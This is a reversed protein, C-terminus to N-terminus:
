HYLIFSTIKNGENLCIDLYVDNNKHQEICIIFYYLCFLLRNGNNHCFIEQLMTVDKTQQYFNYGYSKHLTHTGFPLELLQLPSDFSHLHFLYKSLFISHVGFLLLSTYNINFFTNM